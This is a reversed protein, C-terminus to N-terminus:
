NSATIGDICSQAGADYIIRRNEFERGEVLPLLAEIMTQVNDADVAKLVELAEVRSMNPLIDAEAVVVMFCVDVVHEIIEAELDPAPSQAFLIGAHFTLLLLIGRNSRM